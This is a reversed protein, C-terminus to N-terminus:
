SIFELAEIIIPIIYGDRCGTVCIQVRAVVFQQDFPCVNIPGPVIDGCHQMDAYQWGWPLRPPCTQYVCCQHGTSYINTYFEDGHAILQSMLQQYFMNCSFFLTLDM